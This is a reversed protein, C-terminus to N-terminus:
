GRMKESFTDYFSNSKIKILKVTNSARKIKLTDKAFIPLSFEGDITLFTEKDHTAAASIVIESDGSLIIPRDFLSNSCIPTLIVLNLAPDVIPGGASMSYATSGTPTAAILGDARYYIPSGDVTVKIDIMRSLEGKSIVAENLCYFKERNLEVELMMRDETTYDGNNVRSIIDVEEPSINALYGVRGANIGLIPISQECVAKATHIITGDGGITIVFDCDATDDITECIVYEIQNANLVDCLKSLISQTGNKEYNPVIIAKM